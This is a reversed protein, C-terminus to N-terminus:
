PVRLPEHAPGRGRIVGLVLYDALNTGHEGTIQALVDSVALNLRVVSGLGAGYARTTSVSGNSAM